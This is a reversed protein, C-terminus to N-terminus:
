PVASFPVDLRKYKKRVVKAPADNFHWWENRIMRFKGGKLMADRLIRRNKVQEKTLKGEALSAAHDVAHGDLALRNVVADALERNDEVLLYRM